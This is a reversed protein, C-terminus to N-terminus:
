SNPHNPHGMRQQKIQKKSKMERAKHEPHLRGQKQKNLRLFNRTHEVDDQLMPDKFM